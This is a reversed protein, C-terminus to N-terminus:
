TSRSPIRASRSTQKSSNRRTSVMRTTTAHWRPRQSHRPSASRSRAPSSYLVARRSTMRAFQVLGGQPIDYTGAATRKAVIPKKLGYYAM